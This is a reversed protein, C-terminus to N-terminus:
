VATPAIRGEAEFTQRLGEQLGRPAYGLEEVARDCSAWFTVGDASSILEGLNPPQGMGAGVLPGFPKLAKLMGTPVSMRPPRRGLLDAACEIMKRMTTIEGGLVYSRGDTGKELALMSGAVVDDVHVLNLGLDPFPLAPLKGDAFQALTKGVSSTDGPGYVGGPQVIVCPLGREAILREVLQHARYKTEEYYSTFEDPQREYTEDVVEGHTNGFVAVTSVYLVRPVGAALAAEMLNETGDVNAKRMPERERKPIDVEYVAAAHIVVQRGGCAQQLLDRSSLDGEILECGAAALHTGREADRVLCAVQDGRDIAARALRGGIFGTAGTMLVRM